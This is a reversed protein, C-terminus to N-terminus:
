DVSGRPSRCQSYQYTVILRQIEIWAGVLPAVEKIPEFSICKIIEIWAGVLPAVKMQKRCYLDQVIEIWAGVLPAVAIKAM